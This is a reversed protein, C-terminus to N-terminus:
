CVASLDRVSYSTLVCSQFYWPWNGLQFHIFGTKILIKICFNILKKANSLQSKVIVAQESVICMKAHLCYCDGVKDPNKKEPQQQKQPNSYPVFM